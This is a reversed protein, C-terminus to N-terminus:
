SLCLATITPFLFTYYTFTLSFVYFLKNNLFISNLNFEIFFSWFFDIFLDSALQKPIHM